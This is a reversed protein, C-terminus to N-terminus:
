LFLLKIKLSLVFIQFKYLQSSHCSPMIFSVYVSSRLGNIVCPHNAQFYLWTSENLHIFTSKTLFREPVVLISCRRACNRRVVEALSSERRREANVDNPPLMKPFYVLFFFFRWYSVGLARLKIVEVPCNPRVFSM